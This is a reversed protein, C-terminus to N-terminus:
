GGVLARRSVLVDHQLLRPVIVCLRQFCQGGCSWSRDNGQNIIAALFPRRGRLDRLIVPPRVNASQFMQRNSRTEPEPTMVGGGIGSASLMAQRPASGGAKFAPFAPWQSSRPGLALM